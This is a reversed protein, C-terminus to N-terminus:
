KINKNIEEDSKKGAIFMCHIAIGFVTGIIMGSIFLLM